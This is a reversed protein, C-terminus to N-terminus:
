RFKNRLAIRGDLAIIIARLKSVAKGSAKNRRKNSTKYRDLAQKDPSTESEEAPYANTTDSLGNYDSSEFTSSEPYFPHQLMYYQSSDEPDKAQTLYTNDQMDMPDLVNNHDSLEPPPEAYLVRARENAASIFGDRQEQAWDRANRFATAGKRFSDPNSTM